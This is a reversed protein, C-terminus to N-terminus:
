YAMEESDISGLAMPSPLMAKGGSFGEEMASPAVM